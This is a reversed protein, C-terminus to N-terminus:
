YLINENKNIQVKINLNFLKRNQNKHTKEIFSKDVINVNYKIDNVTDYLCIYPSVFISEYYPYYKENIFYTNLDFQYTNDFNVPREEHYQNYISTKSYNITKTEKGDFGQSQIGGLRDIWQLYYRAPCEDVDAIKVPGDEHVIEEYSERYETSIISKTSDDPIFFDDYRTGRHDQFTEFHNKWTDWEKKEYINFANYTFQIYKPWKKGVLIGWDEIDKPTVWPCSETMFTYFLEHAEKTIITDAGSTTYQYVYTHYIPTNTVHVAQNWGLDKIMQKIEQESNGEFYLYIFQTDDSANYVYFYKPRAPHIHLNKLLITMEPNDALNKGKFEVIYSHLGQSTVYTLPRAFLCIGDARNENYYLQDLSSSVIVMSSVPSYDIKRIEYLGNLLGINFETVADGINVVQMFKYKDTSMYPYHPMLKYTQNYPASYDYVCGTLPVVVHDTMEQCKVKDYIMSYEVDKLRYPYELLLEYTTTNVVTNGNILTVTYRDAIIDYEEITFEKDFWNKKQVQSRFIDTLYIEVSTQGALVYVNGVFILGNDSNTVSYKFTRDNQSAAFAARFIIKDNLNNM